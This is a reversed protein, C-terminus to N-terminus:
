RDERSFIKSLIYGLVLVGFVTCVAQIIIQPVFFM